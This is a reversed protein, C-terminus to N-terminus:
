KYLIFNKTNKRVPILPGFVIALISSYTIYKTVEFVCDMLLVCKGKLLIIMIIVLEISNYILNPTDINCKYFWEGNESQTKSIIENEKIIYKYVSLLVATMVVIIPYIIFFNIYLLHANVIHKKYSMARYLSGISEDNGYILNLDKQAENYKSINNMYTNINNNNNNNINNNTVNNEYSSEKKVHNEDESENIIETKIIKKKMLHDTNSDISKGNTKSFDNKNTISPDNSYDEMRKEIDAEDLIGLEYGFSVYLYYIYLSLIIGIHKLFFNLSCGLYSMYTLFYNSIFYLLIGTSFLLIQIFGTDKIIGSKRNVIVFIIFMLITVVIVPTVLNIITNIISYFKYIYIVM